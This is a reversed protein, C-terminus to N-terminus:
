TAFTGTSFIWDEYTVLVYVIDVTSRRRPISVPLFSSNLYSYSLSQIFAPSFKVCWCFHRTQHAVDHTTWIKNQPNCNLQQPHAMISCVIYSFIPNIFTAKSDDVVLIVRKEYAKRSLFLDTEYMSLICPWFYSFWTFNSFVLWHRWMKLNRKIEKNGLIGLRLDNRFEPPLEHAVNRISSTLNQKIQSSNFMCPFVTFHM